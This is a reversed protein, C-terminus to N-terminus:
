RRRPRRPSVRPAPTRPTARPRPARPQVQRVHLGAFVFATVALAVELMALAAAPWADSSARVAGECVYLWVVLTTAKMVRLRARWLGPLLAVLPLAKVVLTGRGTPALAAEWAVCLM